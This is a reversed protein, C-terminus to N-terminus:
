LDLGMAHVEPVLHRWRDDDTINAEALMLLQDVSVPFGPLGQGMRAALLIAGMPIHILSVQPHGASLAAQRYLANLTFRKPGGMEWIAGIGEGTGLLQAIVEAVDMRAVPQFLTTGAGPVPVAPWLAQSKLTQFFPAGGGFLLSPRLITWPGPYDRVEQEAIWKTQHYRSSASARTGLASVYILRAAGEAQMAQVLRLTVRSHMQEFTIGRSPNEQIIGVLHVVADVERVAGALDMTAINGALCPVTSNDPCHRALVTVEHHHRHLAQLVAQGLYGTGGTLLIRM